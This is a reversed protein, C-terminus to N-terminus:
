IIFNEVKDGEWLRPHQKDGSDRVANRYAESYIKNVLKDPNKKLRKLLLNHTWIYHRGSVTWFGYDRTYCDEDGEGCSTAFFNEYSSVVPEKYHVREEVESVLAGSHCPEMFLFVEGSYGGLAKFITYPDSVKDNTFLYYETGGLSISASYYEKGKKDNEREFDQIGGVFFKLTGDEKWVSYNKVGDDLKWIIHGDLNEKSIVKTNEPIPLRSLMGVERIKRKLREHLEDEDLKEEIEKTNEEISFESIGMYHERETKSNGHSLIILAVRGSPGAANKANKITSFLTNGFCRHLERECNDPTLVKEGGNLSLREPSGQVYTVEYGRKRLFDRWIKGDNKAAPLDNEISFSHQEIVVAQKDGELNTYPYGSVSFRYDGAIDRGYNEEPTWVKLMWKGPSEIRFDISETKDKGLRSSIEPKLLKRRKKKYREELNRWKKLDTPIENEIEGPSYLSIDVDKGKPDLEISILDGEDADFKYWDQNDEGGLYGDYWKIEPSGYKQSSEFKQTNV